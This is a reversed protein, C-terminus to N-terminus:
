EKDEQISYKRMGFYSEVIDEKYTIVVDYLNPSAPSWLYLNNLSISVNKNTEITNSQILQGDFYIEIYASTYKTNTKINFNVEKRDLDPTIKLNEIFQNPVSELWVTKWIGSVPTYFLSSYDGEPYLKQKGRAHSSFETKDVVKIQLINEGIRIEDTIDLTFPLYGGINEGIKKGNLFLESEQDSAGVNLFVQNKIFEENVEFIKQYHLYEDPQLIHGVGSLKTEPAFPVQIQQTYESVEDNKNIELEWKGNLNYYSKRKLIPRPYEELPIDQKSYKEGWKTYLQKM